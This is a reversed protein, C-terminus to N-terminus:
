NREPDPKSPHRAGNSGALFRAIMPMLEQNAPPFKHRVLTNADVWRFEAIALAKPREGSALDALYFRLHLTRDPYHYLTQYFLRQPIVRIGVEEMMERRLTELDSEGAHPKGGPLEWLDAFHTDRPRRSILVRGAQCVIGAVIELPSSQPDKFFVFDEAVAVGVQDFYFRCERPPQRKKM